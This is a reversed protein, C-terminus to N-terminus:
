VLLPDDLKWGDREGLITIYYEKTFIDIAFSM